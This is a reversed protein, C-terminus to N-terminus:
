RPDDAWAGPCKVDALGAVRDIAHVTFAAALLSGAVGEVVEELTQEFRLAAQSVREVDFSDAAVAVAALLVGAFFLAFALRDDKLRGLVIPLIALGAVVYFVLLYDGAAGWPLGWGLPQLYHDRLRQHVYFQEDLTLVIFGVAIAGWILVDSGNSRRVVALLCLLAASFAALLLAAVEFFAMPAREPALWEWYAPWRASALFGAVALMGLPLAGAVIVRLRRLRRDTM